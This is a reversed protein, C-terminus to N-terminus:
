YDAGVPQQYQRKFIVWGAVHTPLSGGKYWNLPNEPPKFFAGGRGPGPGGLSPCSGSQSSPTCISLWQRSIFALRPRPDPGRRWLRRDSQMSRSLRPAGWAATQESGWHRPPIRASCVPLKASAVGHFASTKCNGTPSPYTVSLYQM